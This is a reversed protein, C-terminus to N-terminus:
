AAHAHEAAYPDRTRRRVFTEVAILLLAAIWFWRGAWAIPRSEPVAQAAPRELSRLMAAPLIETELENIPASLAPIAARLASAVEVPDVSSLFFIPVREGGATRARAEVAMGSAVIARLVDHMWPEDMATSAQLLADRGTFSPLVFVARATIAAAGEATAAAADIAAPVWAA